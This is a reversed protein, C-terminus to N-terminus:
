LIIFQSALANLADWFSINICKIKFNDIKVDKMSIGEIVDISM